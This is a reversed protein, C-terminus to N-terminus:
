NDRTTGINPTTVNWDFWQNLGLGFFKSVGFMKPSLIMEM